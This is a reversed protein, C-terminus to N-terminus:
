SPQAFAFTVPVIRHSKGNHQDLEDTLEEEVQYLDLGYGNESGQAAVYKGDRDVLM